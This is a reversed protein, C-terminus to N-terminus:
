TPLNEGGYSTKDNYNWCLEENKAINRLAFLAVRRRGEVNFMKHRVNAYFPDLLGNLWWREFQHNMLRGSRNTENSVDITYSVTNFRIDLAYSRVCGESEREQLQRKRLLERAYECVLEGKFLFKFAFVERGRDETMRM